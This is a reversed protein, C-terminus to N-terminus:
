HSSSHEDGPRVVLVIGKGVPVDFPTAGLKAAPFSAAGAQVGAIAPTTVVSTSEQLGLAAWDLALTVRADATCWTAIVVVALRGPAAHVTALVASNAGDKDHDSSAAVSCQRGPPPAPAGPLAYGDFAANHMMRGDMDKKLCGVSRGQADKAEAISFGVCTSNTSALECCLAQAEAATM